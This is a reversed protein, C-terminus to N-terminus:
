AVISMAGAVERARAAADRAMTACLGTYGAPDLLRVIAAIWSREAKAVFEPGNDTRVHGPIGRLMFLDTLITM